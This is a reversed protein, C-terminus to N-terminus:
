RRGLASRRQAAKIRALVEPSDPIHRGDLHTIAKAWLLADAICAPRDCVQTSAHPGSHPDGAEVRGRRAHKCKPDPPDYRRAPDELYKFLADQAM